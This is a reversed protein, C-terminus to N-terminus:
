GSLAEDHEIIYVCFATFSDSRPEGSRLNGMFLNLADQTISHEAPLLITRLKGIGVPFFQRVAFSFLLLFVATLIQLRFPNKKAAYQAPIAPGYEVRYSM